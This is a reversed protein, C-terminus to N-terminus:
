HVSRTIKKHFSLPNPRVRELDIFRNKIKHVRSPLPCIQWYENVMSDNTWRRRSFFKNAITM